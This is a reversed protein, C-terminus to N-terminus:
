LSQQVDQQTEESEEGVKRTGEKREEEGKQTEISKSTRIRSFEAFFLTLSALFTEQLLSEGKIIEGSNKKRISFVFVCVFDLLVNFSNHLIERVIFSLDFSVLLGSMSSLREFKYINTHNNALKQLTKLPKPAPHSM